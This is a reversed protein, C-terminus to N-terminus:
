TIEIISERAIDQSIIAVGAHSWFLKKASIKIANRGADFLTNGEAEIRKSEIKTERGGGKFSVLEFTVHYNGETNGKDIAVGSVIALSEIERYNWCGSLITINSLFAIFIILKITVKM